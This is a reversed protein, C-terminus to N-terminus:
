ITGQMGVLCNGVTGIEEDVDMGLFYFKAQPISSPIPRCWRLLQFHQRNAQGLQLSGGIGELAGSEIANRLATIPARVISQGSRQREVEAIREGVATKHTGLICYTGPSLIDSRSVAMQLRDGSKTPTIAFADYHGITPCWGFVALEFLRETDELYRGAMRAVFEAIEKLSPPPVHKHHILNLLCASAAAYTMSAPLVAGAYAFGLTAHYSARDFFGSSSPQFCQVSLPFLKPGKDSLPRASQPGTSILTDAVAWLVMDAPEHWIVVSTM